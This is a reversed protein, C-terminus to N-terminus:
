RAALLNRVPTRRLRLGHEALFAKWYALVEATFQYLALVTGDSLTVLIEPEVTPVVIHGSGDSRVYIDVGTSRRVRVHRTTPTKLAKTRRERLAFHKSLNAIEGVAVLAPLRSWADQFPQRDSHYVKELYELSYDRMAHASVCFNFFHDAKHALRRAHYSRYAERELKRYLAAVSGLAPTLSM